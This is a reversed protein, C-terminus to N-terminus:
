ETKVDEFKVGDFVNEHRAPDQATIQLNQFTFDELKMVGEEGGASIFNKCKVTCNRLTVNRARSTLESKAREGYDAFQSWARSRLFSDQITGNVNEVLVNEYYQPTDVRMKLNLMNYCGALTSNRMIVNSCHVSESGLTLATHTGTGATYNEILVRNNDGNGPFKEYDDAYPGKGGKLCIGDDNNDIWVDRIVVDNCVDLDIGDTSPGKKDNPKSLAYIRCNTIKLFDCRYFHATWFMSNQFNPGDIRVDRSNSIFLLRARQEDKNTCQRNWSRRIWFARWSRYGNGDITGSGSITFGNCKDANVLAAIYKCTQGEIRTEVVPYDAIDDSGLLVAGPMLHLNVGPRFFLAGTRFVGPTVVITGGGEKSVKDILSQIDRTKLVGEDPYIGYDILAFRKGTPEVPGEEKLFWEDMTSGDPWSEAAATWVSALVALM